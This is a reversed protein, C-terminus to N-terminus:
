FDFDREESFSVKWSLCCALETGVNRMTVQQCLILFDFKPGLAERLTWSFTIERQPHPFGLWVIGRDRM